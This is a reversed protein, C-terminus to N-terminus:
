STYVTGIMIFNGATSMDIDAALKANLANDVKEVMAAFWIVKECNDLLVFGDDDKEAYNEDPTSCVKCIGDRFTHPPAIPTESFTNSYEVADPTGDCHLTGNAYVTKHSRDLVPYDDEGLNQFWAQEETKQENVLYCIEGSKFQDLTAETGQFAAYDEIDNIYYSNNVNIQGNDNGSWFRVFTSFKSSNIIYKPAAYSNNVTVSTKKNGKWGVFNGGHNQSINGTHNISGTFACNNFVLNMDAANDGNDGACGILGGMCTDDANSFIDCDSTVNTITSTGYIVSVLSAPTTGCTTVSGTLHLNQFTADKAYRFLAGSYKGTYDVNIALKITYGQGDFEGIFPRDNSNGIMFTPFDTLDIDTTLVVKIDTMGDEVLDSFDMLDEISGIQYVGDKQELAWTSM